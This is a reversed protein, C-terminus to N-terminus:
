GLLNKLYLDIMKFLKEFNLPKSIYDDCDAALATERDFDIVFATQAIVPVDPNQKKIKSTAELGDMIPMKIDMLVLDIDPNEEFLEVAQRGNEAHLVTAKTSHLAEELLMFNSDVDEAILIKYGEWNFSRQLDEIEDVSNDVPDANLEGPTFPLVVEYRIGSSKGTIISMEGELMDILTKLVMFDVSEM